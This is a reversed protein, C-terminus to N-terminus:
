TVLRKKGTILPIVKQVLDEKSLFNDAGANRFVAEKSAISFGVIFTDPHEIRLLRALDDGRLVPMRYNILFTTYHRRRACNLAAMGNTCCEATIGSSSLLAQLAECSIANDDIVLVSESPM